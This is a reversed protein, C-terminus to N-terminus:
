EDGGGKQMKALLEAADDFIDTIPEGRGAVRNSHVILRKVISVLRDHYKAAHMRRYSLDRELQLAEELYDARQRQRWAEDWAIGAPYPRNNDDSM